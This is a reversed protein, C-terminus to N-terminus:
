FKACVLFCISVKKEIHNNDKRTDLLWSVNRLSFRQNQPPALRLILRLCFDGTDGGGATAYYTPPTPVTSWRSLCAHGVTLHSLCAVFSYAGRGGGRRGRQLLRSVGKGGGVGRPDRQLLCASTGKGVEGGARGAGLRDCQCYNRQAVCFFLAARRM